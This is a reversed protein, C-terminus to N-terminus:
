NFSLFCRCNVSNAPNEFGGPYLAHDGDYTYFEENIGVTMGELYSHTDRVKDDLMTNWTKTLAKGKAGHLGGTNYVRNGDTEAVRMISPVDGLEAYAIARDVATLGKIQKNIAEAKAEFYDDPLFDGVEEAIVGVEEQALSFGLVYCYELLDFMWDGIEYKRDMMESPKMAELKTRFETFKNLEDFKLLEM